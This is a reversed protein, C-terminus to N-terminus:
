QCTNPINGPCDAVNVNDDAVCGQTGGCVIVQVTGQTVVVVGFKGGIAGKQVPVDAGINPGVEGFPIVPVQDGAIIFLV